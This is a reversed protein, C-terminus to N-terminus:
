NFVKREWMYKKYYQYFRSRLLALKTDNNFDEKDTSAKWKDRKFPVVQIFPTGKEIIGSFKNKIFFPFNIPLNFIDTDVIAPVCYFPLDRLQPTMFMCSYNKPTKIIWPSNLKMPNNIDFGLPIDMGFTQESYHPSVASIKDVRWQYFYSNNIADYTVEIDYPLPIFYGASISDRVPVCRKITMRESKEYETVPNSHHISMDKYWSPLNKVAPYPKEVWGQYEPISLIFEIKKMKVFLGKEEM